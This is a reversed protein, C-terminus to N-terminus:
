TCRRHCECYVDFKNCKSCNYWGFSHTTYGCGRNNWLLTRWFDRCRNEINKSKGFSSLGRLGGLVFRDVDFFTGDIYGDQIFLNASGSVRYNKLLIRPPVAFGLGIGVNEGSDASRPLVPQAPTYNMATEIGVVRMKTWPTQRTSFTMNRITFHGFTSDTSNTSNNQNLVPSLTTPINVLTTSNNQAATGAGGDTIVSNNYYGLGEGSAGLTELFMPIRLLRGKGPPSVVRYDQEVPPTSKPKYGNRRLWQLAKIKREKDLLPFVRLIRKINDNKM